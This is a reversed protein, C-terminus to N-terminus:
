AISDNPMLKWSKMGGTLSYLNNFGLVELRQIIIASRVGKECYLVVDKDKPIEELQSMIDGFPMHSGGINYYDREWTERVDILLFDKKSSMWKKLELASIQYM